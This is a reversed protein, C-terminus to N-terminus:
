HVIEDGGRDAIKRGGRAGQELLVERVQSPIGLSQWEGVRESSGSQRALRQISEYLTVEHPDILERGNRVDRKRVIEERAHEGNRPQLANGLRTLLRGDELLRLGVCLNLR